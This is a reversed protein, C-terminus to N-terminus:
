YQRFFEDNMPQPRPSNFRARHLEHSLHDVRARLHQITSEQSKSLSRWLSQGHESHATVAARGEHSEHWIAYVAARPPNGFDGTWKSLTAPTIDLWLATTKLRKDYDGPIPLTDLARRLAHPGYDTATFLM